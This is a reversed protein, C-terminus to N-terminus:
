KKSKKGQIEELNSEDFCGVDCTNCLTLDCMADLGMIEQVIKELEEKEVRYETGCSECVAEVYGQNLLIQLEKRPLYNLSDIFDERKCGCKEHTMPYTKEEKEEM